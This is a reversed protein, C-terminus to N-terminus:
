LVSPLKAKNIPQVKCLKGHGTGGWESQKQSLGQDALIVSTSLAGQLTQAGPHWQWQLM